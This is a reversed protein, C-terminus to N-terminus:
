PHRGTQSSRLLANLPKPLTLLHGNDDSNASDEHQEADLTHQIWTQWPIPLPIVRHEAFPWFGRVRMEHILFAGHFPM